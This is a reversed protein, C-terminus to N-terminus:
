TKLYVSPHRPMYVLHNWNVELWTKHCLTSSLKGVRLHLQNMEQKTYEQIVLHNKGKRVDKLKKNMDIKDNMDDM